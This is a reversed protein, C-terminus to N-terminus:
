IQWWHQPSTAWHHGLAGESYSLIKPALTMFFRQILDQIQRSTVRLAHVLNLLHAGTQHPATTALKQVVVVFNKVVEVTHGPKSLPWRGGAASYFRNMIQLSFLTNLRHYVIVRPFVTLSHIIYLSIPIHFSCIRVHTLDHHTDHLTNGRVNMIYPKCRGLLIYRKMSSIILQM